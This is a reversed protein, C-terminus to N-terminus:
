GIPMGLRQRISYEMRQLTAAQKHCQALVGLIEDLAARIRIKQNSGLEESAQNGALYKKNLEKIQRQGELLQRQNNLDRQIPKFKNDVIKKLEEVEEKYQKEKRSLQPQTYDVLMQLIVDAKQALYQQNQQIRAIRLEALDANFRNAIEAVKQLCAAQLQIETRQREFRERLQEGANFLTTLDTRYAKTQDVFLALSEDNIFEPYTKSAAGALKPLPRNGIYALEAPIEYPPSKLAPEYLDQTATGSKRPRLSRPTRRLPLTHAHAQLSSTIALYSYGVYVESVVAFGVFSDNEPLQTHLLWRVNASAVVEQDVTEAWAHLDVRHAGLSHYCYFVDSFRSDPYLVVATRRPRSKVNSINLDIVEHLALQPSAAEEELKRLMWRPQPPDIESCVLVNGSDYAVVLVNLSRADLSVIDNVDGCDVAADAAPLFAYPGRREILLHATTRPIDITFMEEGPLHDGHELEWEAANLLDQVWRTRWYAQVGEYTPNDEDYATGSELSARLDEIQESTFSSRLPVVPCISYIDGNTAVGYVTMPEWGAASGKGFCFGAMRSDDTDDTFTRSQASTANSDNAPDFDPDLFHFQQEPEEPEKGVNYMRLHGDSSLVVLHSKNEALPHWSLKVVHASIDTGHQLPGIRLSKCNVVSTDKPNKMAVPLIVVFVEHDGAVALMKGSENLEIQRVAFDYDFTRLVTHHVQKIAGAVDDAKNLAKKWQRLNLVRVQPPSTNVCVFLQEDHVAVLRHAVYADNRGFKRLHETLDTAFDSGSVDLSHGSPTEPAIM